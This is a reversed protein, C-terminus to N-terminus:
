RKVNAQPVVFRCVVILGEVIMVLVASPGPLEHTHPTFSTADYSMAQASLVTFHDM